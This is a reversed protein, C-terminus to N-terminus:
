PSDEEPNFAMRLADVFAQPAQYPFAHPVDPLEILGREPGDALHRAWEPSCLPDREGRIVLVPCAVRAVTAEIDDTLM